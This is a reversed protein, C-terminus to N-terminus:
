PPSPPPQHGNSNPELHWVHLVVPGDEAWQALRPTYCLTVPENQNRVDEFSEAGEHLRAPLLVGDKAVRLRLDRGRPDVTPHGVIRVNETVFVPRPNGPGFPGLMDLKRIDRADLESLEAPGDLDLLPTDDQVEAFVRNIGQRLLDLRDAHMELGVAAHHGGYRLLHEACRSLANRLHFGRVSRGSGRGFGGEFSLLLTPKQLTEAVRAAVIGLVGRHWREGGLVLVADEMQKAQATVEEIVEREVRRRDLNHQELIAAAQQAEQYGPATLLRVADLASGMRGAANILPAIRYSIDESTPSRDGLGASDILARIGPNRSAALARLGHYVLIRNEGRLPAVDAVTGLAVYAMAEILFSRFEPSLTTGHSLSEAVAAVLRFAVGVGALDRDPYGADPLRPNLVAYAEAVDESTGHHDTVIVDCGSAQIAAIAEGANTGNDVS